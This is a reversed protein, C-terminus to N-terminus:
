CTKCPRRRLRRRATWAGATAAIAALSAAAPEPVVRALAAVQLPPPSVVTGYNDRLFQLDDHDVDGDGDADGDSALAGQLKGFGRQWLMFDLADVVGNGDFDASPVDFLTSMRWAIGFDWGAAGAVEITYTGSGINNAANGDINSFFLHEVNDGGEVNGIGSVSEAVLADLFGNTSDYLRLDLNQLSHTPSFISPSPNSDTVKVHWNLVISLEQVTTGQPVELTYYVSGASPQSKLDQYDWGNNSAPAAPESQSGVDRGAAAILYNNWVDLEGAGYVDHLPRTVQVAGSPLVTSADYQWNFSAKKEAGALMIAKVVEANRGLTSALTEHLITAASSVMATSASAAPLPQAGLTPAVLDPKSRGPGYANSGPSLTMGASHIGDNRGVVIANYSHGWLYPIPNVNNALGVVATMGEGSNATDILYDFRRLASVNNPDELTHSGGPALGAVWSLNQVRYNQAAPNQNGSYRIVDSLYNNAEYVDVTNVGAAIGSVNGVLNAAVTTTSHGSYVPVMQGEVIVFAGSSDRLYAPGLGNVDNFVTTQGFPDGTTFEPNNPNPMFPHWQYNLSEGSNVSFATIAAAEIISVSVGAGTPVNSGLKTALLDFRVETQWALFGAAQSSACAWCGAM